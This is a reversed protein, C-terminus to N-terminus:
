RGTLTGLDGATDMIEPLSDRPVGYVDLLTDDWEPAGLQTRSATSPDTAFGAGLRDCLFSDV